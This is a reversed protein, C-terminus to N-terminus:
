RGIRYMEGVDPMRGTLWGKAVEFLVVPQPKNVELFVAAHVDVGILVLRRRSILGELGDRVVRPDESSGALDNGSGVGLDM